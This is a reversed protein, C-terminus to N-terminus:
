VSTSQLSDLLVIIFQKIHEGFVERLVNAELKNM